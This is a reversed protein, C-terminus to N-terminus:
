LINLVNKLRTDMPPAWSAIFKLVTSKEANRDLQYIM